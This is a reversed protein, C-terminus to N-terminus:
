YGPNQKLNPNSSLQQSPIPFLRKNVDSNSKFQWASEWKGFRILDNRRWGEWTLERGREALLEDLTVASLDAIGARRRVQNVFEVADASRGLRILAEAKMLLVDAYRFVVFDNDQDNRTNNKQVEYKVNRVGENGFAKELSSITPTFVLEKSVNDVADTFRIVNGTNDKQPGVLWIGKRQDNDSFTNYFEARTAFGNWPNGNTGYVGGQAYHLTRMQWNMGTALIKDYPITFINENYTAPNAANNVAFNSLFDPNLAYGASSSIVADTAALADQWRPTGTYVEANLYVKALLSNAAGKTFRGYLNASKGEALSPLAEKLEKEVYNFVEVRTNASPNGPPTDETIIPVNGFMDMLWFYAYARAVRLEATLVAKDAEPIVLETTNLAVLNINSKAIVRYAWEWSGNIQGPSVPTWEHKAMQQWSANDYWDPGRTPVVMEDSTAENLVSVPDYFGRLEAYTAGIVSRLENVNTPFESADARDFIETDLDTCAPAGLLLSTLSAAAIIKKYPHIKM